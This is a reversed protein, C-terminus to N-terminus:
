TFMLIEQLSWLCQLVLKVQATFGQLYNEPADDGGGVFVTLKWFKRSHGESSDEKREENGDRRVTGGVALPGWFAEPNMELPVWRERVQPPHHPADQSGLQGSPAPQLLFLLCSSSDMGVSTFPKVSYPLWSTSRGVLMKHESFQPHYDGFSSSPSTTPCTSCHM